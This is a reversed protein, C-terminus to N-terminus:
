AGQARCKKTWFPVWNKINQKANTNSTCDCPWIVPSINTLVYETTICEAQWIVWGAKKNIATTKLSKISWKGHSAQIIKKKIKKKKKQIFLM